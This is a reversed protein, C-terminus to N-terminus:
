RFVQCTEVPRYLRYLASNAVKILRAAIAPDTEIIRATDAVGIDPDEMSRRVKWAVDSLTPLTARNELSYRVVEVAAAPCDGDGPLEDVRYGYKRPRLNSVPHVAAASGGKLTSVSGDEATLELTGSLLYYTWGDNSGCRFLDHNPGLELMAASQSVVCLGDDDLVSLPRLTRLLAPTIEAPATDITRILM